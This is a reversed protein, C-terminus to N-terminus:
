LGQFTSVGSNRLASMNKPGKLVQVTCLENSLASAWERRVCTQRGHSIWCSSMIIANTWMTRAEPWGKECAYLLPSSKFAGKYCEVAHTHMAVGVLFIGSAKSICVGRKDPCAAITGHHGCYLPEVTTDFSQLQLCCFVDSLSYSPSHLVNHPSHSCAICQPM